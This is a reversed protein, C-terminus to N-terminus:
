STPAQKNTIAMTLVTNIRDLAAPIDQSYLVNGHGPVIAEIEMKRIWALSIKWAEWDEVSGAELNPIYESVLCDACFLVQDTHSYFALNHPTHGPLALVEVESNGLDFVDGAQITQSANVLTTGAYFADSEKSNRRTENPISQNYDAQEQEFEEATRANEPHGYIEYGLERFFSNGGIHDFHPESNVIVLENKPRIARAYGYITQAALRNAGTDIVMSYQSGVVIGSNVIWPAIAGLGTVAYCRDSIQM